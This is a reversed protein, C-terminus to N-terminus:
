TERPTRVAAEIAERNAEHLKRVAAVAEPRPTAEVVEGRLAHITLLGVNGVVDDDGYGPSAYVLPVSWLGADDAGLARANTGAAIMTPYNQAIYLGAIRRLKREFDRGKSAIDPQEARQTKEAPLSPLIGPGDPHDRSNVPDSKVPSIMTMRAIDASNTNINNLVM